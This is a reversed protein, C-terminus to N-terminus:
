KLMEAVSMIKNYELQTVNEVYIVVYLEGSDNYYHDYRFVTYPDIDNGLVDKGPVGSLKALLAIRKQAYIDFDPTSKLTEIIAKEIKTKVDVDIKNVLSTIDDRSDNPYYIVIQNGNENDNPIYVLVGTLKANDILKKAEGATIKKLIFTDFSYTLSATPLDIASIAAKAKMYESYEGMVWLRKQSSSLRIVELNLNLQGIFEVAKDVNIYLLDIFYMDFKGARSNELTDVYAAVEQIERLQADNVNLYLVHPNYDYYLGTPLSMGKLMTNLQEATIYRCTVSKISAALMANENDKIDVIRLLEKIKDFDSETAYVYLTKPNDEFIFGTPLSMSALVENMQEASIYTCTVPKFLALVKEVQKDANDQTDIITILNYIKELTEDTAYVYLTKPNADYVITVADIALKSLTDKLLAATIFQTRVPTFREVLQAETAAANEEIDLLEIIKEADAIGQAKGRLWMKSNNTSIKIITVDANASIQSEILDVTVYKLTKEVIKETDEDAQTKDAVDVIEKISKISNYENKLAFVYLTQPRSALIVGSPLSAASLIRQFESATINTLEISYFASEPISGGGPANERRDVMSILNRVRALDAPLGQALFRYKNDGSLTANVAINFTAIQGIITEATVYKLTFETIKAAEGFSGSLELKSGVIITNDSIIYALDTLKMMYDLAEGVTVDKLTMTIKTPQGKYIINYGMNLAFASLADRLDTNVFTVSVKTDFSTLMTSYDGDSTQEAADQGASAGTAPNTKETESAAMFEPQAQPQSDPQAANGTQATGTGNQVAPITLVTGTNILNINEINNLRIIEDLTVGYKKAILSLTEGSKVTHQIYSGSEQASCVAVAASICLVAATLIATLRLLPKSGM